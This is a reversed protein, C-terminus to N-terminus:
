VKKEEASSEAAAPAEDLIAQTMPQKKGEPIVDKVLEYFQEQELTEKEVLAAAITDLYSRQKVLLETARTLQEHMIRAVEADIQTAVTESYNKHEAFDRGLFVTENPEALTVPGIADSMGYATVLKRAMNTAVKLDNSAGTTLESFVLKEAAYGGLLAAIEDLFSSKTQMHKEESPLKM